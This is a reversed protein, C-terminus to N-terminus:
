GDLRLLVQAPFQKQGIIPTPETVPPDDGM